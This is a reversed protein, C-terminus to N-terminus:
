IMQSHQYGHDYVALISKFLILFVLFWKLWSFSNPLMNLPILHLWITYHMAILGTRLLIICSGTWLRWEVEDNSIITKCLYKLNKRLSFYPHFFHLTLSRESSYFPISSSYFSIQVRFQPHDYFIAIIKMGEIM